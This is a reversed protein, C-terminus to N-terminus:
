QQVTKIYEAAHEAAMRGSNVAFGITSGAMLLDYSDGYMGGADNGVAYLGPIVNGHTSLVQMDQTVKAGGLTGLAMPRAEVAFFPPTAVVRLYKPDKAFQGDHKQQAFSNYLEITRKLNDSPVGMKKALGEISDAIFAVKNDM